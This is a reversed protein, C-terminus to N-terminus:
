GRILDTVRKARAPTQKAWKSQLAYDAAAKRDGDKLANLMRGFKLVGAVGMQYCMSGIAVQVEEPQDLLWPHKGAIAWWKHAAEHHLWQEAIAEPIKGGKREDILFGYGLTLWGLHDKYAHPVFGEEAKLHECLKDLM